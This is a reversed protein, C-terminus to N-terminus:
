FRQFATVSMYHAMVGRASPQTLQSTSGHNTWGLKKQINYEGTKGTVRNEQRNNEAQDYQSPQPISHRCGSQTYMVM